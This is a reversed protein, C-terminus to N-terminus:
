LVQLAELLVPFLKTEAKRLHEATTSISIGQELAIDALTTSKPYKYYGHACAYEFIEKQRSTLFDSTTKLRLFGSNEFFDFSEMDNEKLRKKSHIEVTCSDDVSNLFKKVNKQSPAMILVKDAGDTTSSPDLRICGSEHIQKLVIKDYNCYVYVFGKSKDRYVEVVKKVYPHAQIASIAKDVEPSSIKLEIVSTKTDSSAMYPAHSIIGDGMKEAADICWCDHTIGVDMLIPKTTM